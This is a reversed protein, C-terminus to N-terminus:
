SAGMEQLLANAARLDATDHRQHFGDRIEVLAAIAEDRGTRGTDIRHEARTTAARLALAPSGQGHALALADDFAVAAGDHDGHAARCRGRLRLLEAELYRQGTHETLALAEDVAVSAEQPKQMLLHARALLALGYSHHLRQGSDDLARLGARIAKAGAAPRGHLADVWGTLIRGMQVFFEIHHTNSVDATAAALREMEDTDGLENATWCAYHLAYVFTTPENLEEALAVAEDRLRRARGPDGLYWMTVALRVTCVVKPDQAYLRLHAGALDPDYRGIAHELQHRAAAFDGRWFSTVGLLYRGEVELLPHDRTDDLALLERALRAAEAVNGHALVGLALGRLVPPRAPRGLRESLQQARRYAAMTASGGYGHLTVLPVGLETHLELELEDRSPGAPLTDILALARRLLTETEDIAALRRAHAAARRYHDIAHRTEGAAEYHSAIEVSAEDPDEAHHEELATAVRHHLTRARAPGVHGAAVERIRDHVFEYAAAGHPRVIRRRWLEDLADVLTSEGRGSTARLVEFTFRRGIIGAIAAIERGDPTLQALRREIIAQVRSPRRGTEAAGGAHSRALQERVTEVVFLPNGGSARHLQAAQSPTPEQGLLHGTLEGVETPALPGLEVVTVVELRQLGAVLEEVPHGPELEEPRVTLLVLLSSRADLRALFHLFELTERDCWQLDDLVLLLPREDTLLAQALAHFLLQRQESASAAVPDPLDPRASRLEPLLRAIEALWADDLAEPFPQLAESRLWNTVPAYALRGEAPYARATAAGHGQHRCWSELEEVLRSKGIGAEGSVLLARTRGVAVERFTELCASWAAARGVMPVVATERRNDADAVQESQLLAQHAERTERGPQVGLERELTAVCTHYVHLARAREGALAHLRMLRRYSEEHLPDLRLLEEAHRIAAEFDHQDELLGALRRIVDLHIHRFRERESLVWEEHSGPLLEGGGHEAAHALAGRLADLDNARGAAAVAEEVAVVDAWYPADPRWGITTTDVTLFREPDPLVRRLQHLLQRLNTRAQGETSDPWLVAAIHARPQPADRHLLLFALLARLRVADFGDVREGDLLVDPDGLLRVVLLGPRDPGTGREDAPRRRPSGMM